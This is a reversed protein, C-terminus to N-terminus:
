ALALTLEHQRAAETAGAGRLADAAVGDVPGNLWLLSAAGGAFPARILAAADAATAAELQLLSAQAGALVWAASGGATRAAALTSGLARMNAVTVTSRQWPADGHTTALAALVEGVDAPETEGGAPAAELKWVAVDRAAVFGIRRYIDIAPANQELVELRVRRVGRERGRELLRRTLLEGIGAGRREPLVGMGGVWAERGRVALVALGIVADGDLAVVSTELDLDYTATMRQLRAEDIEIPHWYGAYVGTFLAALAARDLSAASVVDIAGASV